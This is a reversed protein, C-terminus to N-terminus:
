SFPLEEDIGTPINMFGDNSQGQMPESPQFGGQNFTDAQSNSKSEAFEMEDVMIQVSYVKQGDKNTYDNNQIRGVIVMKIGKRLYKEVFEAQKGFATCNFFDAEPEGARKFRRDVAISFRAIAMSNEGQSYRVEPDRTLRGMLMVKNM